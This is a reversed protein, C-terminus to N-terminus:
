SAAKAYTDRCGASCFWYDTGGATLHPTDARITVSMGCVPDTADAPVQVDPARVAGATEAGVLGDLRIAKVIETMISLAIEPATRAGIWLGAPTHIAARESDNLGMATVLETGRKPSAVLAIFPIHADLAARVLLEEDGHTSIVGAISDPPLDDTGRTVAFGLMEAMDTVADAIPTAGAVHLTPAPLEPRLFLEMAGGSLCPNVVTVAGPADPFREQGGPLVRLLVGEGDRIVGLATRRVSEITCQGGVFGEIDGGPLVIAEDGTKASSPPQSRVVTVHVFPVRRATM